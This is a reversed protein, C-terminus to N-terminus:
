LILASKWPVDAGNTCGNAIVCGDWRWARVSVKM